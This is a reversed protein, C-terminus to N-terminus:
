FSTGTLLYCPPGNEPKDFGVRTDGLVGFGCGARWTFPVSWGVLASGRLEAGVGVLPADFPDRWDDVQAFANGADVFLAGSVYRLFAPVTGWGRDVRLLPARYEVGGLWYMDGVDSAYPYGRVMRFEDPTSVYAYDGYPGGLQYNGFFETPGVTAGGALRVAVVHNPLHPVTRYERLEATARIQTFGRRGGDADLLKTGLWPHMVGGVLSFSRADEPSIARPAGKGWAYRWGGTLEGIDGRAPLDDFSTRPSLDTLDRRLTMAYRGFVTTKYTYPYSVQVFAQDRRQWYREGSDVLETGEIDASQARAVWPVNGSTFTSRRAGIQYVPLWRNVTLQAGGEVQDADTRYAVDATWSLFRLVDTGGTFAGLRAAQYRTVGADDTGKPLWRATSADYPLTSIVPLWFRPTATPLPSYRHPAIAFPYDVEDGFLDEIDTQEFTDVGEGSQAFGDAPLYSGAPRLRESAGSWGEWERVAVKEGGTLSSLAPEGAVPNPLYGREIPTTASLDLRRIEWGDASYQQYALWRGDPSVSPATAMTRVNTWQVLRETAVEVAYVNPIGSRDSAFFLWKGDASWEPAVDLDADATLRRVPQGQPDYIWLDRRGDRWVSVAVARGDPAVRPTSFQAHDQTNTRPTLRRDVTMTALDTDQAGNTVVWLDRGDPSFEPDRARKGVTLAVAGDDGLEHLYVDSWTNFRNVVHMAAYVFAQSDARWTFARAGLDDLEVKANLGEGDALVITSGLRQDSCSWVLKQGDPSFSPAACSAAPDSLLVGERLGEAEVQAIQAQFDAARADTWDRYLAQLSKHFVAQSPLLWPVGSGYRHTWKTWVQPGTQHAVYDILDEGFLYRLNGGPPAVQFGDLNGLPPWSDDVWATRLIAEVGPTRGRGGSTHRTEQFTALGEIMWWPSLTNTSAVKGVVGRVVRVVGHHTDLHLVHTYEHTAITPLWEEYYGLTSDGDPATAYLVIHNYPTTSAYGNASDTRDVLVVQTRRRPRWGMEDSMVGYVSEFRAALEDALQEEGQHFHIEFHDTSIVRWTLEPDFSAALAAPALVLASLMGFALLRLLTSRAVSIARGPPEIDIGVNVLVGGLDFDIVTGDDLANDIEAEVVIVDEVEDLPGRANSPDM